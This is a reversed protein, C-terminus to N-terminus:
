CSEREWKRTNFDWAVHHWKYAFSKFGKMVEGWVYM